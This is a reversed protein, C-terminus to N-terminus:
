EFSLLRRRKQAQDIYRQLARQADGNMEHLECGLRVGGSEPNLSTVHCLQLAAEFRTSPELEIQVHRLRSGPQLPPVDDPLFLACGGASVDLVRLALMMEAIAPHRLLAVPGSRPPTRVRYSARRQFRFMEHPLECQLASARAGRVLVPHSLDFQLKVSDLYAVATVEHGEILNQLQPDDADASFSLKGLRTDVTWLTVTVHAGGPTSLQVPTGADVLAKLLSLREARSDVLFDALGHGPAAPQTDQFLAM